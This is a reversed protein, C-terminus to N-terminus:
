SAWQRAGSTAQPKIFKFAGEVMQALFGEKLFQDFKLKSRPIGLVFFSEEAKSLYFLFADEPTKFGREMLEAIRRRNHIARATTLNEVQACGHQSAWPNWVDAIRDLLAMDSDSKIRPKTLDVAHGNSVSATAETEKKQSQPQSSSALAFVQCSTANALAREKQKLAKAHGGRGGSESRRASKLESKALENEIRAHKWDEDFFEAIVARSKAWERPTMRSIRQLMTEDSPLSGHRWYAMILLLYAGHEAATLHATDALYDAVYLPM